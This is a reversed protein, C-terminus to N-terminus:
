NKECVLLDDTETMEFLLKVQGQLCETWSNDRLFDEVMLDGQQWSERDSWQAYSIWTGSTSRHLRAGLSGNRDILLQSLMRWGLRFQEERGPKVNFEYVLCIVTVKSIPSRM